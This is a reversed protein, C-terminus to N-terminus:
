DGFLGLCGIREYLVIALCSAVVAVVTVAPAVVVPAHEDPAVAVPDHEDAVAVTEGRCSDEDASNSHHVRSRPHSQSFITLAGLVRYDRRQKYVAVIHGDADELCLNGNAAAHGDDVGPLALIERKPRSRWTYRSGSHTSPRSACTMCYQRKAGVRRITLRTRMDTDSDTDSQDDLSSHLTRDFHMAPTLNFVTMDIDLHSIGEWGRYKIQALPYPNFSENCQLRTIESAHQQQYQEHQQKHYQDQYGLDLDPHSQYIAFSPPLMALVKWWKLQSTILRPAPASLTSTSIFASSGGVDVGVDVVELQLNQPYVLGLATSKLIEFRRIHQPQFGVDRQEPERVAGPSNSDPARPGAM